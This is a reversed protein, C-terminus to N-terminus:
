RECRRLPACSRLSLAHSKCRELVDVLVDVAEKEASVFRQESCALEAVTRRAIARAFDASSNSM